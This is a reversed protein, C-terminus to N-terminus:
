CQGIQITTTIESWIKNVRKYKGIREKNNGIYESWEVADNTRLSRIIDEPNRIQVKRNVDTIFYRLM